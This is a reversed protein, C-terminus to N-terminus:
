RVKTPSQFPMSPRRRVSQSLTGHERSITRTLSKLDRAPRSLSQSSTWMAEPGRKLVNLQPEEGYRVPQAQSTEPIVLDSDPVQIEKQPAFYPSRAFRDSTRQKIIVPSGDPVQLRDAANAFYRGDELDVTSNRRTNAFTAEPRTDPELHERMRTRNRLISRPAASPLPLSPEVDLMEEDHPGDDLIMENVEMLRRKPFSTRPMDGGSNGPGRFDLTVGRNSIIRRPRRAPAQPSSDRQWYKSNRRARQNSPPTHASSEEESDEDIEVHSEDDAEDCRMDEGSGHPAMEDEEDQETESSEGDDSSISYVRLPASISSLPAWASNNLIRDSFSVKRMAKQSSPREPTRHEPQESEEGAGDRAVAEDGNAVDAGQHAEVSEFQLSSNSPEFEVDPLPGSRLELKGFGQALARSIKHHRPPGIQRYKVTLEAAEFGDGAKVDEGFARNLRARSEHKKRLDSLSKHCPAPAKLRKRISTLPASPKPEEDPIPSIRRKHGSSSQGAIPDQTEAGAFSSGPDHSEDRHGPPSRVLVLQNVPLTRLPQRQPREVAVKNPKAKTRTSRGASNVEAKSRQVPLRDQQPAPRREIQCGAHENGATRHPSVSLANTSADISTKSSSTPLTPSRLPSLVPSADRGYVQELEDESLPSDDPDPEERGSRANAKLDHCVPEAHEDTPIEYVDARIFHTGRLPLPKTQKGYTRPPKRKSNSMSSRRRKKDDVNAMKDALM